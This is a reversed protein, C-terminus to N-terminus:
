NVGGALEIIACRNRCALNTESVKTPEQFPRPLSAIDVPAIRRIALNTDRLLSELHSTRPHEVYEGICGSPRWYPQPDLHQGNHRCLLSGKNSIM